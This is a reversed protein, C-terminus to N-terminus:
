LIGEGKTRKCDLFSFFNETFFTQLCSEPYSWWGFLTGELVRQHFFFKERWFLSKFGSEMSEMFPFFSGKNSSQYFISNSFDLKADSPIWFALNQLCLLLESFHLRDLIQLISFVPNLCVIKGKKASALFGFFDRNSKFGFHNLGLNFLSSIASRRERREKKPNIM